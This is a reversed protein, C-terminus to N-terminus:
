RLFFLLLSTAATEAKKVNSFLTFDLVSSIHSYFGPVWLKEGNSTDDGKLRRGMGAM